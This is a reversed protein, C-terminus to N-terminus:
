YSKENVGRWNRDDYFGYEDAITEELDDEPLRKM